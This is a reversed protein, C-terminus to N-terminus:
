RVVLSEWSLNSGDSSVLLVVVWMILDSYNGVIQCFAMLCVVIKLSFGFDNEDLSLGTNKNGIKVGDPLPRSFESMAYIATLGVVFPLLNLIIFQWADPQSIDFSDVQLRPWLMSFHILFSIIIIFQYFFITKKNAQKLALLKETQSQDAFTFTQSLSENFTVHHNSKENASSSGGTFVSTLYDILHGMIKLIRKKVDLFPFDGTAYNTYSIQNLM